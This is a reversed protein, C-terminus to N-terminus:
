PRPDAAGRNKRLALFREQLVHTPRHFQPRSSTEHGFTSLQENTTNLQMSRACLSAIGTSTWVPPPRRVDVTADISM